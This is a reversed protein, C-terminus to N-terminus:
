QLVDSQIVLLVFGKCDFLGGLHRLEVHRQGFLGGLHERTIITIYLTNLAIIFADFLYSSSM